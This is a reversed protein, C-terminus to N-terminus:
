SGADAQSVFRPTITRVDSVSILLAIWLVVNCFASIGWAVVSLIMSINWINELLSALVGRDMLQLFPACRSIVLVLVSLGLLANWATNFLGFCEAHDKRAAETDDPGYTLREVPAFCYPFFLNIAGNVCIAVAVSFLAYLSYEQVNEIQNMRGMLYDHEIMGTELATLLAAFATLGISLQILGLMRRRMSYSSKQWANFVTKLIIGSVIGAFFVILTDVPLNSLVAKVTAYQLTLFESM